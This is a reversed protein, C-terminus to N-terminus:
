AVAREDTVVVGDRIKVVRGARSALTKDHTVVVLTRGQGWLENLLSMV